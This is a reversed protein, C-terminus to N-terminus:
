ARACFLTRNGGGLDLDLLSAFYGDDSEQRRATLAEWDLSRRAASVVANVVQVQMALSEPQKFFHRHRLRRLFPAARRASGSRFCAAPTGGDVVGAVARSSSCCGQHGSWWVARKGRSHSVSPGAHQNQAPASTWGHPRPGACLRLEADLPLARRRADIAALSRRHLHETYPLSLDDEITGSGSDSRLSASAGRTPPRCRRERAPRTRLPIRPEASTADGAGGALSVCGLASLAPRSGRGPRCVFCPPASSPLAYSRGGGPKVGDDRCRSRRACSWSQPSNTPELWVKM